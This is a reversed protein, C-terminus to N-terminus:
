KVSAKRAAGHGTAAPQATRRRAAHTRKLPFQLLQSAPHVAADRQAHYRRRVLYVPRQKSEHYIRGLYEGIVGIGILQIGGVFLMVSILSAYGHVPNGFLLTRMVIFAGYIFSLAAFALGIYTWVRLPVTSFSTIGELAFNWRRWGSFKSRGGSRPARTYEILEIRYGVWAFLGKMFRRREPLARLADVVQRDMLRFDGVNEPMEVESLHNHVRYYLAAAVRQMLPDCRRDTRKAAVVEAGALWREVMAPILAPPDQLDADILIVATGAAEDIGATLAAEKGFRRTLDVIRVRPDGAAVDILRGLTDDRSGDNICVIEFRVSEVSELIPLTTAFFADIAEEEDHFPVVLSVLPKRAHASM